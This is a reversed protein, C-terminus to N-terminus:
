SESETTATTQPLTARWPSVARPKKRRRGAATYNETWLGAWDRATRAEVLGRYLLKLAGYDIARYVSAVGCGALKAVDKVRMVERGNITVTDDVAPVDHTCAYGM